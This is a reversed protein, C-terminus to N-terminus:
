LCQANKKEEEKQAALLMDFFPEIRMEVTITAEEVGRQHISASLIGRHTLPKGNHLFWIENRCGDAAPRVVVTNIAKEKTSM